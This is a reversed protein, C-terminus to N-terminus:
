HRNRNPRIGSMHESRTATTRMTKVTSPLKEVLDMPPDQPSSLPLQRQRARDSRSYPHKPRQRAQSMRKQIHILRPRRCSSAAAVASPPPNHPEFHAEVSQRRRQERLCLAGLASPGLAGVRNASEQLVCLAITAELWERRNVSERLSQLSLPAAVVVVM